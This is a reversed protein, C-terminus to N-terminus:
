RDGKVQKLKSKLLEIELRLVLYDVDGKVLGKGAYAGRRRVADVVVRSDVGFKEAVTQIAQRSTIQPLGEWRRTKRVADSRLFAYLLQVACHDQEELARPRGPKASFRGKIIRATM